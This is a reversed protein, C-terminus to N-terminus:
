AHGDAEAGPAAPRDYTGSRGGEKHELRIDTLVMGKDLAKCMDYVTLLATSVGTLAEMEVGTRGTTRVTCAAEVADERLSLDVSVHTLMLPHCLPILEWTRKAAQIGAVRAVGLVDGKKATGTQIATMVAGNVHIEGRAVALRQTPAKDTVDVMIAKGQDDFHNLGNM